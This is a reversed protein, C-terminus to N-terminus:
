AAVALECSLARLIGAKTLWPEGRRWAAWADTCAQCSERIRIGTSGLQLSRVVDRALCFGNCLQLTVGCGICWRELKTTM